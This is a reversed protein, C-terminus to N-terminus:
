VRRMSIAATTFVTNTKLYLAPEDGSTVLLTKTGHTRTRGPFYGLRATKGGGKVHLSIHESLVSLLQDPAYVTRESGFKPPRIEVKGGNARQVQRSVHIERKLFDIDAVTMAAAEGLRTGAFLCLAVFARFQVDETQLLRGAEAPTPIRMAAAAKRQRPLKVKATVDYALYRDRIAARIVGRANVFRTRITSSELPKEQMEKVWMEIHSPKLDSFAVDRFSSSNAALNMAQRTGTEWVQRSSWEKYYSGFTVAGLDPDIYTGTVQSSVINDLWSKAEAKTRFGKARERGEDDVYRARWRLGNGHSVSPTGNAKTWRDEIGSRRNRKQPM